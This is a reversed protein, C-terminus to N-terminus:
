LLPLKCIIITFIIMGLLAFPYTAGYGAAPDESKLTDIAAGLGPTSTMGGCIAGSLIVWNLKFGYRGLIFGVVMSIIGIILSAVVLYVGPGMIADAAMHGYKLGVTGLFFTMSLERLVNLVGPDMKFSLKGIRGVYGLTLSAILVGGTSGLSFYGLFGLYIELNGLVYGATCALAFPIIEFPTTPIDRKPSKAKAFLIEERYGRKEREVDIKFIKTFFNMAFIVIIVGFPYGIAYGVGVGAKANSIYKSAQEDSLTKTNEITLNEDGGIVNLVNEKTRDDLKKYDHVYVKAQKEATELASGLGPSSTLAGTYLGSVEYPNAKPVIATFGYTVMAGVFTIVIGLIIFKKGYKRLVVGMDKAALLGVSAVFIMLFIDTIYGHIVGEDLMTKAATYGDTYEGKEVIAEGFEYVAWGIMLGTFLTGSGGFSFRGFKIKGFAIGSVVTILTLVFPDTMIEFIDFRM